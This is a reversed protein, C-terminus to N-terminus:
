NMSSVSAGRNNRIEIYGEGALRRFVERVPTRSLGYETSIKVEDLDIGPELNLTLIRKKLDDYLTDKSNKPM